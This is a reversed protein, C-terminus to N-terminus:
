PVPIWSAKRVGDHRGLARAVLWGFVFGGAHAWFAVGGYAAAGAVVTATGNLLQTLFWFMLVIGAPLALTTWLFGLPVITDIRHRPFLKWYAGLVGAVAGSAGLLPLSTGAIFPLEALAAVVGSALYFALFRVHGFRAEINDGFIWLFWMNSLIHLFGGHLFQSTILGRLTAPTGLDLQSPVLAWRAIFAEIDGSTLEVFFVLVNVGIIALTIIPFRHSREHDRIPFM